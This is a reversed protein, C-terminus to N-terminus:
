KAPNCAKILELLIELLPRIISIWIKLTDIKKAPNTGKQKSRFRKM